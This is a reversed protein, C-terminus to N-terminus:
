FEYSLSVHPTFGLYYHRTFAMDVLLKRFKYGLGFSYQEYGSSFGGRLYLKDIAKVELGGKYIPKQHLDKETELLLMAKEEFSYSFGLRAVTPVSQGFLDDNRTRTPNYLHFGISLNKLPRALLGVEASVANYNGYGEAMHTQLYDIQVGVAFHETFKRSYALGFKAEYYKSYGFYRYCAAITGPKFPLAFTGAQMSFEKVLFRNEFYFGVTPKSIYALCAQNNFTGWADHLTVSANSLAASRAGAPYNGNDAWINLHILSLLSLELSLKIFSPM